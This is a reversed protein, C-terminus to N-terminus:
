NLMSHCQEMNGLSLLKQAVNMFIKKTKIALTIWSIKQASDLIEAALFKGSVEIGGHNTEKKKWIYKKLSFVLMSQWSYFAAMSIELKAKCYYLEIILGILLGFTSSIEWM